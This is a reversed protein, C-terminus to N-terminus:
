KNVEYKTGATYNHEQAEDLNYEKHKGKKKNSEIREKIFRKFYTNLVAVSLDRNFEQVPNYFVNRGYLIM